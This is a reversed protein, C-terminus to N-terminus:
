YNVWIHKSTVLKKRKRKRSINQVVKTGLVQTRRAKGIEYVKIRNLTYIFYSNGRKASNDLM